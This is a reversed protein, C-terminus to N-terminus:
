PNLLPCIPDNELSDHLHLRSATERLKALETTSILSVSEAGEQVIEIPERTAIADQCLEALRQQADQYAIQKPM